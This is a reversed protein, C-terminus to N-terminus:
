IENRTEKHKQVWAKVVDYSGHCNSPIEWKVYTLIETLILSNQRDAGGVAGMLDNALVATLFGGPQIGHTIYHDFAEKLELPISPTM